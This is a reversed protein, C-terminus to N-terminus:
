VERAGVFGAVGGDGELQGAEPLHEGLGLLPAYAGLHPVDGVRGGREGEGLGVEVEYPGTDGEVPDRRAGLDTGGGVEPQPRDHLQRRGDREHLVNRATVADTVPMVVDGGALRGEAQHGDPVAVADRPVGGAGARHQDAALPPGDRAPDRHVLEDDVEAPVLGRDAGLRDEEAGAVAALGGGLVPRLRGAGDRVLDDRADSRANGADVHVLFLAPLGCPPGIATESARRTCCGYCWVWHGCCHDPSSSRYTLSLLASATRATAEAVPAAPLQRLAVPMAPAAIPTTAAPAAAPTATSRSVTPRPM